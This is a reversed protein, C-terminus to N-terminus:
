KPEFFKGTPGCFGFGMESRETKCPRLKVKRVEGTVLDLDDEETLSCYHYFGLLKHHRCKICIPPLIPKENETKM